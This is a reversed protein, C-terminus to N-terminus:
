VIHVLVAAHRQYVRCTRIRLIHCCLWLAYPTLNIYSTEKRTTFPSFLFILARVYIRPHISVKSLRSITSLSIYKALILNTTIKPKVVAETNLSCSTVPQRVSIWGPVLTHGDTVRTSPRFGSPSGNASKASPQQEPVLGKEAVPADKLPSVDRLLRTTARAEPHSEGVDVAM